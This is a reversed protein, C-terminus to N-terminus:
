SHIFFVNRGGGGLTGSGEFLEPANSPVPLCIDVLVSSFILSPIPVVSSEGLLEHESHPLMSITLSLSFPSIM